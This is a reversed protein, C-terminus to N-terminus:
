VALVRENRCPLNQTVFRWIIFACFEVATTGDVALNRHEPGEIVQFNNGSIETDYFEVYEVTYM